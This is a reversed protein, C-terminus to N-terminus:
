SNELLSSAPRNKQYPWALFRTAQGAIVLYRTLYTLEIHFKTKRMRFLALGLEKM